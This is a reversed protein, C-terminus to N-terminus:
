SAIGEILTVAEVPAWIDDVPYREIIVTFPSHSWKRKKWEELFYKTTPIIDRALMRDLQAWELAGENCSPLLDSGFVGFFYWLELDHHAIMLKGLLSVSTEIGTEEKLERLACQEPTEGPEFKGGIGTYLNPAFDRDPSRKLLVLQTPNKKEGLFVCTFRRM